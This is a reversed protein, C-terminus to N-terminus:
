CDLQYKKFIEELRLSNEEDEQGGGGRDRSSLLGTRMEEKQENSLLLIIFNFEKTPLDRSCSEYWLFVRDWDSLLTGYCLTVSLLLDAIVNSELMRGSSGKFLKDPSLTSLYETLQKVNGRYLQLSREIGYCISSSSDATASTAPSSTNKNKKSKKVAGKSSSSKQRDFSLSLKLQSIPSALSSAPSSCTAPSPPPSDKIQSAMPSSEHNDPTQPTEPRPTDPSPPLYQGPLPLDPGAVIDLSLILSFVPSRCSELGFSPTTGILDNARDVSFDDDAWITTITTM